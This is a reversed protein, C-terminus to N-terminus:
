RAYVWYCAPDGSAPIAETKIITMRKGNVDVMDGTTPSYNIAAVIIALDSGILNPDSAMMNATLGKAYANIESPVENIAPPMLPNNNPTVVRLVVSVGGNSVKAMRRPATDNRFRSVLASPM